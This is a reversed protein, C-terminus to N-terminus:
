REKNAAVGMPVQIGRKYYRLLHLIEWHKFLKRELAALNVLSPDIVSATLALRAEDDESM